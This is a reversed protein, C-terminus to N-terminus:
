KIETVTDTDYMLAKFRHVSQQMASSSPVWIVRKMKDNVHNLSQM